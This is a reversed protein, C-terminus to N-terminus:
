IMKLAGPNANFSRWFTKCAEAGWGQLFLLSKTIYKTHKRLSSQRFECGSESSRFLRERKARAPKEIYLDIREGGPFFRKANDRKKAIFSRDAIFVKEPSEEMLESLDALINFGKKLQWLRKARLSSRRM